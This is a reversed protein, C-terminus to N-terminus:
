LRRLHVFWACVTCWSCLCAITVLVQVASVARHYESVASMIAKCWGQEHDLATMWVIWAAVTVGAFAVPVLLLMDFTPISSSIVSSGLADIRFSSLFNNFSTYRAQWRASCARTSDDWKGFADPLITCQMRAVWSLRSCADMYAPDDGTIQPYDCAHEHCDKEFDAVAKRLELLNDYARHGSPLGLHLLEDPASDLGDPKFLLLCPVLLVVLLPLWRTRALENNHRGLQMAATQSSWGCEESKPPEASSGGYLKLPTSKMRRFDDPAGLLPTVPSSLEAHGQIQMQRQVSYGVRSASRSMATERQGGDVDDAFHARCKATAESLTVGNSSPPVAEHPLSVGDSDSTSSLRRGLRETMEKAARLVQETESTEATATTPAVALCRDNARLSPDEPESNSSEDQGLTQSTAAPWAENNDAVTSM